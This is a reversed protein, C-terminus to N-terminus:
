RCVARQFVWLIIAVLCVISLLCSTPCSFMEQVWYHDPLTDLPYFENPFFLADSWISDPNGIQSYMDFNYVDQINEDYRYGLSDYNGHFLIGFVTFPSGAAVIPGFYPICSLVIGNNFILSIINKGETTPLPAIWVYGECYTDLVDIEIDTEITDVAWIKLSNFIITALILVFTDKNIM